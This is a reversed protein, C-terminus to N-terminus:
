LSQLIWFRELFYKSLTSAGPTRIEHKFLNYFFYEQIHHRTQRYNAVIIMDTFLGNMAEDIANPYVEDEDVTDGYRNSAM